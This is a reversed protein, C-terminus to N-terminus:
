IFEIKTEEYTVNALFLPNETSARAVGLACQMPQKEISSVLGTRFQMPM